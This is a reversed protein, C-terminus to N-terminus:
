RRNGRYPIQQQMRGSHFPEDRNENLSGLCAVTVALAAILLAVSMYAVEALAKFRQWRTPRRPLMPEEYHRVLTTWM